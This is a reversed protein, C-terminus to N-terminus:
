KSHKKVWKALSRVERLLAPYDLTLFEGNRYLTRGHVMTFCVEGGTAAYVIHSAPTFMPQLNPRTLDLATMDAPAGPAIRGLEPWLLCQAAQETAMNLVQAAPLLTPDLGHVKHLLAASTMEGFMNLNNNSAAGDTGLGVRVGSRLLKDVPAVGSALKMNSEPNHSVRCQTQALLVIENETLDVCHDLLTRPSLLDLKELHAIPRNGLTDMCQATEAQSEAAHLNFLADEEEALAFCRTLLDPTTLYTSHPKVAARMRPHDRCIDFLERVVDFSADVSDYAPTPFMFQVEGLVARMGCQDVARAVGKELLYMDCFATTGSAMMEACGLLAGLQVIDETLNQEVPFIHENLWTLLPLDDALGRLYTMPVHTHTNILGPMLLCNDLEETQEARYTATIQTRPGCDLVHGDHVAVAADHIPEAHSSPVLIDACILTQCATRDM